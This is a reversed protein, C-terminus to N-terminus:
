YILNANLLQNLYDISNENYITNMFYIKDTPKMVNKLAMTFKSEKFPVQNKNCKKNSLMFLIKGILVLHKFNSHISVFTLYRENNNGEIKFQYIVNSKKIDKQILDNENKIVVQSVQIIQDESEEYFVSLSINDHICSNIVKYAKNVFQFIDNNDDIAFLTFNQKNNLSFLMDSKIGSIITEHQNRNPLYVDDFHFEISSNIFNVSHIPVKKSQIYMLEPFSLFSTADDNVIRCTVKINARLDCVYKHLRHINCNTKETEKISEDILKSLSEFDSDLETNSQLLANLGDTTSQIEETVQNFHKQDENEKEKLIQPDALLTVNNNREIMM